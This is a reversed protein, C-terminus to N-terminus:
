NKGKKPKGNLTKGKNIKGKLYPILYHIFPNKKM